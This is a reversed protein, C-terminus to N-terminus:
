RKVAQLEAKIVDISDSWKNREMIEDLAQSQQIWM